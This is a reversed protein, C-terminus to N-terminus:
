AQKAPRWGLKRAASRWANEHDICPNGLREELDASRNVCVYRDLNRGCTTILAGPYRLRVFKMAESM